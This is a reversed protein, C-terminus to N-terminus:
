LDDKREDSIKEDPYSGLVKLMTCHESLAKLAEQIATDDAHGDFDVFFCYEWARQRSPRSEIRSMNLSYHKFSELADYLAGVKHKVAFLISTKDHGTPKGYRPAVV